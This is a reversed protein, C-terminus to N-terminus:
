VEFYIKKGHKSLNKWTKASGGWGGWVVVVVMEGPKGPKGHNELNELDLPFRTRNIVNPHHTGTGRTPYNSVPVRPM